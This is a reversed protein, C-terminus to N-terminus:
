DTLKRILSSLGEIVVSSFSFIYIILFKNYISIVVSKEFFVSCFKHKCSIQVSIMNNRHTLHM